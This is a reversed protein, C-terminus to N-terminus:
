ACVISAPCSTANMMKRLARPGAGHDAVLTKNDVVVEAADVNVEAADVNVKAAIEANDVSASSSADMSLTALAAVGDCIVDTGTSV